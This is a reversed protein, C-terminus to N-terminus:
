QSRGDPKAGAKAARDVADQAAAQLLVCVEAKTRKGSSLEMFTALSTLVFLLDVLDDAAGKVIDMRRVLVGILQRRRENRAHLSAALEPDSSGVAYLSALAEQDFSWFECFIEIVQRIAAVPDPQTMAQPIRHLGGRAAREDFVAELLASRSGFHNYVTLRTVSAKTAVAELSFGAPGKSKLLKAAASAIRRRTEDAAQARTISRYARPAM